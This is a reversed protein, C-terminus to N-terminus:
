IFPRRDLVLKLPKASAIIGPLAVQLEALACVTGFLLHLDNFKEDTAYDIAHLYDLYEAAFAHLTQKVEGFRHATQRSARNLCYIWDIEVFGVETGLRQCLSKNQYLELCTDVMREPYHLPMRRYELNFLYHFSAAMYQYLPATSQQADLSAYGKRWMGTVPDAENWLWSFYWEEWEPGAGGTIAMAAYIGAGQHSQPWPNFTWDLGELLGYLEEKDRYRLLQHLPHLPAADFLELAAVCHATTHIPHHTAEEFLGTEPNQLGQLTHIWKGREEPGAIFDGITYLINAADACGYENLGLQRSHNEDQWLWRAYRGAEGLQHEKISCRIHDLLGDISISM